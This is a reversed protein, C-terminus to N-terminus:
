LIALLYKLADSTWDSKSLYIYKEDVVGLKIVKNEMTEGWLIQKSIM